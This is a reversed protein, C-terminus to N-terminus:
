NFRGHQEHGKVCNIIDNLSMDKRIGELSGIAELDTNYLTKAEVNDEINYSNLYFSYANGSSLDTWTTWISLGYKYKKQFTLISYEPTKFLDNTEFGHENLVRFIEEMIAEHISALSTKVAQKLCANLSDSDSIEIDFAIELKKTQVSEKIASYKKM